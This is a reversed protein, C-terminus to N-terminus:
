RRRLTEPRAAAIGPTAHLRRQRRPVPRIPLVAPGRQLIQRRRQRLPQQLLLWGANQQLRGRLRSNGSNQDPMAHPKQSRGARFLLRREDDCQRGSLM